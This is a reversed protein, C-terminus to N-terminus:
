VNLWAQRILIVFELSESNRYSFGSRVWDQQLGLSWIPIKSCREGLWNEAEWDNILMLQARQECEGLLMVM